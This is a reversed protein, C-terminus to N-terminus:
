DRQYMGKLRPWVYAVVWAPLSAGKTEYGALERILVVGHTFFYMPLGSLLLLTTMVVFADWTDSALFQGGIRFSTLLGPHYVWTALALPFVLCCLLFLLAFVYTPTAEKLSHMQGYITEKFSLM